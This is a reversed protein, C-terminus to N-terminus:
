QSLIATFSPQWHVKRQLVGPLLRLEGPFHTGPQILINRWTQEIGPVTELHATFLPQLSPFQSAPQALLPPEIGAVGALVPTTPQIRFVAEDQILLHRCPVQAQGGEIIGASQGSRCDQGAARFLLLHAKEGGHEFTFHNGPLEKSLWLRASIFGVLLGVSETM